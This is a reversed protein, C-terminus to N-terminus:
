LTRINLNVSYPLPYLTSKTKSSCSKGGYITHLFQWAIRQLINRANSILQSHSVSGIYRIMAATRTVILSHCLLMTIWKGTGGYSKEEVCDREHEM